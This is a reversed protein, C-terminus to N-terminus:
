AVKKGSLNWYFFKSGERYSDLLVRAREKRAGQERDFITELCKIYFDVKLDFPEIDSENLFGLISWKSSTRDFYDNGSM